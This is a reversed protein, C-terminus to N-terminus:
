RDPPKGTSLSTAGGATQKSSTATNPKQNMQPRQNDLRQELGHTKQYVDDKTREEYMTLIQQKWETYTRPIRFGIDAIIRAYDQPIGKRVAQVLVSRESQDDLRNALKAERELRRFYQYAPGTMRLEGMKREHVLEITPDRFQERVM